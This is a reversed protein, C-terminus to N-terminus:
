QLCYVLAEVVCMEDRDVMLIGVLEDERYLMWFGADEEELQQHYDAGYGRRHALCNGLVKGGWQMQDHSNIEVARGRKGFPFKERVARREREKRRHGVKKVRGELRSASVQVEAFPRTKVSRVLAKAETRINNDAHNEARRLAYILQRVTKRTCKKVDRKVGCGNRNEPRAPHEDIRKPLAGRVDRKVEDPIVTSRRIAQNFAREESLPKRM